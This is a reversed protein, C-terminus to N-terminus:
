IKWNIPAEGNKVLFENAMKFHNCGFFGGYASLPSPHVSTLVLHNPNTILNMKSKANNGWLMFVVPKKRTNLIRIVEDTFIEWGQNKHSNAMGGRVTLVNNILMGGQKAWPTLNGSGSM